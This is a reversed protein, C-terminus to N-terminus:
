KRRDSYVRFAAASRHLLPASPALALAIQDEHVRLTVVLITSTTAGGDRQLPEEAECSVKALCCQRLWHFILSTFLRVLSLADFDNHWLPQVSPHTVGSATPNPRRRSCGPFRFYPEEAMGPSFRAEPM